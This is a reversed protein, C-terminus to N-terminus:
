LLKLAEEVVFFFLHCHSKERNLEMNLLNLAKPFMNLKPPIKKNVRGDM